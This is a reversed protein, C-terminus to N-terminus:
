NNLDTTFFVARALLPANIIEVNHLAAKKRISDANNKIGKAVVIPAAESSSNYSLAVSFNDSDTIVVRKLETNELADSFIKKREYKNLFDLIM